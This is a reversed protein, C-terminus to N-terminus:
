VTLIVKLWSWTTGTYADEFEGGARYGLYGTVHLGKAVVVGPFLLFPLMASLLLAGASTLKKNKLYTIETKRQLNPRRMDGILLAM